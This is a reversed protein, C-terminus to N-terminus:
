LRVCYSDWSRGARVNNILGAREPTERDSKRESPGKSFISEVAESGALPREWIRLNESGTGDVGYIQGDPPSSM